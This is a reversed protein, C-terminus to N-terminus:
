VAQDSCMLLEGRCGQNADGSYRRFSMTQSSAPLLFGDRALQACVCGWFYPRYTCDYYFTPLLAQQQLLILTGRKMNVGARIGSKGCILITGALMAYGPMDECDGGVAILGRRMYGGAAQGANGTILITGGRMGKCSGRYAAGAFHGASGAVQIMGGEMQAGLWDGANGHIVLTGGRMCAGAHFGASGQIVMTGARMGEGLRKFRSLDGKLVLEPLDDEGLSNSETGAAIDIDFYAGVEEQRSGCWLPLRKIEEIRKENISEPNISEAEVPL